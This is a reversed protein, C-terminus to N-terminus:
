LSGEGGGGVSLFNPWETWQRPSPDGNTIQQIRQRKDAEGGVTYTMSSMSSPSRRPAPQTNRTQTSTGGGQSASSSSVAAMTSGRSGFAPVSQPHPCGKSGVVSSNTAM